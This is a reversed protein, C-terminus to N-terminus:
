QYYHGKNLNLYTKSSRNPAMSHNAIAFQIRPLTDKSDVIVFDNLNFIDKIETGTYIASDKMTYFSNIDYRYEPSPFNEKWGIEHLFLFRYYNNSDIDESNNKFTKEIMKKNATVLKISDNSVVYFLKQNILEMKQGYSFVSVILILIILFSSKNLDTM